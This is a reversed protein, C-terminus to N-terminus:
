QRTIQFTQTPVQLTTMKKKIQNFCYAGCFLSIISHLFYALWSDYENNKTIDFITGLEDGHSKFKLIPRMDINWLMASQYLCYLFVGVKGCEM